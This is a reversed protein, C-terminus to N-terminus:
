QKQKACNPCILYKYNGKWGEAKLAQLLEGISNHESVSDSGTNCKDCRYGYVNPIAKLGM